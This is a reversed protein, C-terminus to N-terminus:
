SAGAGRWRPLVRHLALIGRTLAADIAADSLLGSCFILRYCIFITLYVVIGAFFVDSFFHGGFTMRMFGVAAGFTIAAAYSAARWAPPALAAPAMLWFAGSADGSVFSCNNPCTGRPDWWPKFTRSGGFETVDIPRPRGWHDKLTTNAILGPALALSAILFIISRGRVLLPRRPRALKVILAIASPLAAVTVVWMSLDRLIMLKYNFRAPFPVPGPAFLGSIALDYDPHIAFILGVMTALALVGLLSKRTM